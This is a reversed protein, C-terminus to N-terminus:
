LHIRLDAYTSQLAKRRLLYLGYVYLWVHVTAHYSVVPLSPTAVERKGGRGCLLCIDLCFFKDLKPNGLPNPSSSCIIARGLPLGASFLWFGSSPKANRCSARTDSAMGAPWRACNPEQNSELNAMCLNPLGFSSGHFLYCSLGISDGSIRQAFQRWNVPPLKFRRLQVPHKTAPSPKPLRKTWKRPHVTVM